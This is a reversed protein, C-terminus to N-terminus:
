DNALVKKIKKEAAELCDMVSRQAVGEMEAIQWTSLGDVVHLLYRRRQVDTLAALACDAIERRRTQKEAEDQEAIMTDEPSPVAALETEELAHFSVMKKRQRGESRDQEYFLRDSLAKLEAFDADRKDPNERLYEALTVEVTQNAFRYVIGSAYKNAAYDSDQYNKM